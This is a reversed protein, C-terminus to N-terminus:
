TQRNPHTERKRKRESYGTKEKEKRTKGIERKTERESEIKRM